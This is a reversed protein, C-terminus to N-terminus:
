QGHTAYSQFYDSDTKRQAHDKGPESDEGWRRDLIHEAAARYNAFQSRLVELDSELQKKAALAEQTSGTADGVTTQSEDRAVDLIEDISILVADNELVPKLFRDHEFHELSIANPLPKHERVTARIFNVLKVAGHFDLQLKGVLCTLDFNYQERCYRLMKQVESFTKSDLLSVVTVEEEEEPEVDLWGAEDSSGSDSSTSM